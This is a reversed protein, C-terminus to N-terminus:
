DELRVNLWMKQVVYSIDLYQEQSNTGGGAYKKMLYPMLPYAQDGIVYASIGNELIKRRSPPIVADKLLNNLKSNVFMRTDPVSGPWKM